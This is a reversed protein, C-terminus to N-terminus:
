LQTSSLSVQKSARYRNEKIDLNRTHGEHFIIALLNDNTQCHTHFTLFIQVSNSNTQM